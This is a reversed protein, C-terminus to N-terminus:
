EDGLREEALENYMKKLERFKVEEILRLIIAMEGESLSFHGQGAMWFGCELMRRAKNRYTM